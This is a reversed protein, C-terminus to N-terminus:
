GPSEDTNEKKMNKYFEDVIAEAQELNKLAVFVKVAAGKVPLTNWPLAYAETMYTEIENDELMSTLIGAEWASGEFVESPSQHQNEKTM